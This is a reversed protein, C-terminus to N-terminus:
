FGHAFGCILRCSMLCIFIKKDIGGKDNIMFLLSSGSLFIFNATLLICKTPCSKYFYQGTVLGIGHGVSQLGIVTAVRILNSLVPFMVPIVMWTNVGACFQVFM